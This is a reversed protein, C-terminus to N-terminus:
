EQEKGDGETLTQIQEDIAALVTKRKEGKKMEELTEIDYTDQALEILDEASLKDGIEPEKAVIEDADILKQILPHASFSKWEKESVSNAGPILQVGAANRVYNGKNHVFM